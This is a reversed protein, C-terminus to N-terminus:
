GSSVSIDYRSIILCNACVVAFGYPSIGGIIFDFFFFFGLFSLSLGGVDFAADAVEGSLALGM